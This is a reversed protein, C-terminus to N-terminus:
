MSVHILITTMPLVIAQRQRSMQLTVVMAFMVLLQILMRQIVEPQATATSVALAVLRVAGMYFNIMIHMVPSVIKEEQEGWMTMIRTLVQVTMVSIPQTPIVSKVYETASLIEM